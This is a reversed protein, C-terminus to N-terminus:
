GEILLFSCWSDLWLLYVKSGISHILFSYLSLSFIWSVQCIFSWNLAWFFWVSCTCRGKGEAHWLVALTGGSHWWSGKRCQSCRGRCRANPIQTVSGNWCINQVIQSLALRSLLHSPIVGGACMGSVIPDMGLSGLSRTSGPRMGLFSLIEFSSEHAHIPNHTDSAVALPCHVSNGLVESSASKFPLPPLVPSSLVVSPLFLLLIFVNSITQKKSFYISLSCSLSSFHHYSPSSQLGSAIPVKREWSCEFM